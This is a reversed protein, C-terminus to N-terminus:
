AHIGQIRDMLAEKDKRLKRIVKMMDNSEKTAKMEITYKLKCSDNISYDLLQFKDEVKDKERIIDAVVRNCRRTQDLKKAQSKTVKIKGRKIKSDRMLTALSNGDSLKEFFIRMHPPTKESLIDITEKLYVDNFGNDKEAMQNAIIDKLTTENGDKSGYNYDLSL